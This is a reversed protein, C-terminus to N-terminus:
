GQAADVKRYMAFGDKHRITQIAMGEHKLDYIRAGLRMCRFRVWADKPTLVEGKNLAERIQENQTM